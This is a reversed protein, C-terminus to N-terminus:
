FRRTVKSSLMKTPGSYLELITPMWGYVMHAGCVVDEAGLSTKASFYGLLHPYSVIYSDDAVINTTHELDFVDRM